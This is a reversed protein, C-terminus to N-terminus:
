TLKDTPLFETCLQTLKAKDEGSVIWLKNFLECFAKIGEPAAARLTEITEQLKGIREEFPATAGTIQQDCMTVANDVNGRLLEAQANLAAVQEHAHRAEYSTVATYAAQMEKIFARMAQPCSQLTELFYRAWAAASSAACQTNGDCARIMGYAVASIVIFSIMFKTFRSTNWYSTMLWGITALGSYRYFKNWKSANAKTITASEAGVNVTRDLISAFKKNHKTRADAARKKAAIAVQKASDQTGPIAAAVELKQASAELDKVAQEAAAEELTERDTGICAECITNANLRSSYEQTPTPKKGRHLNQIADVLADVATMGSRRHTSVEATLTVGGITTLPIKSKFDFSTEVPPTKKAAAAAYTQLTAVCLLGFISKIFLRKM